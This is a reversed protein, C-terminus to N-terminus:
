VSVGAVAAATTAVLAAALTAFFNVGQNGLLEGELVVGLVSDVLMGATGALLVMAVGPPGIDTSLGVLAVAAAGAVGAVTGQWTVAGDTGPEVPELTTILRPNDYLTGIESSLTDALAAAVAGAFAFLFLAESLGVRSGVPVALVAVLAVLSNALVNGTDRAGENEQEVGRDAKREYGVKTSLGGIAFFAVLMAVWGYGGLVTTLFVLLVGTLMGPISATELTFATYGLVTTAALAVAIRVTSVEGVLAYLMWLLLAVAVVVLADDRRFLTERVLAAGLSGSTALFTVVQWTVGEGTLQLTLFQGASAALFGGVVFGVVALVPTDTLRRAVQGVFNGVALLLVTAVFVHKPMDFGVVLVALGATALSFAALGYLRGDRRDAPWAFLEFVLHGPRVLLAVAAVALFPGAALLTEAAPDEAGVLPVVVAFSGVLAFAAGRRVPTTVLLQIDRRTM